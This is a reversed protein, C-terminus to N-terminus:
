HTPKTKKLLRNFELTLYQDIQKGIISRDLPKIKVKTEKKYIDRVIVFYNFEDNNDLRLIILITYCLLTPIIYYLEMLDSFFMCYYALSTVLIFSGNELLYTKKKRLLSLEVIENYNYQWQNSGYEFHIHDRNLTIFM